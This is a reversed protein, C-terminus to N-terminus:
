QLARKVANGVSAGIDGSLATNSAAFGPGSRSKSKPKGPIPDNQDTPGFTIQLDHSRDRSTTLFTGSNVTARTLKWSPTLDGSSTVDFKVEHFIVDKDLARNNFNAQKTEQITTTDLLWEVLKLDSQMLMLGGPRAEADCFNLRRLERVTYFSNLKDTRTAESSLSGGTALSFIASAPSPPMWNVSPSVGTKETITLNLLIQVGWDDMYTHQRNQYLTNIANRVECTINHVISQVMVIQDNANGFDQIEPVYTGCSSLLLAASM